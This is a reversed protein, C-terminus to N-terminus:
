IFAVATFCKKRPNRFGALCKQEGLVGIEYVRKRRNLNITESCVKAPHRDTRLRSQERTLSGIQRSTRKQHHLGAEASRQRM